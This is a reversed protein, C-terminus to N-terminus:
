NGKIIPTLEEKLKNFEERTMMEIDMLEKAEKLKNIADARTMKVNSMLIEGYYWANDVDNVTIYKNLGFSKGNIEGILASVGLPKNRSGKHYLILEKVIALNGRFGKGVRGPTEGGLALM